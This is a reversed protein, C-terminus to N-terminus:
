VIKALVAEARKQWTYQAVDKKAQTKLKDSLNKDQLMENIGSALAQPDDAAVLLASNENLIERISPLDSSVIPVGSAMYAFLKLPSTFNVSVIDKGTNPLILIDAAALNAPLERYPRFGLFFINPYLEKFEVIEHDEGGIVVVLVNEPLLRAAELLTKVGKWGDLRGAYLAVKKDLPLGLRARSENVSEAHLFSDLDVGDHAVFLKVESIGKSVYFDKLGQTITVIHKTFHAVRRAFFTWSGTHTEWTINEAGFWNLMCLVVEDRGYIVDYTQMARYIAASLAFTLSEIYFGVKGWGIADIVFLKKIVFNQRSGYYEWPTENISTRRNPVVLEVVAGADAMAECMKVVQAGHAKETPLRINAVYLIKM